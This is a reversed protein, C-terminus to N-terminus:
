YFDSEIPMLYWNKENTIYEELEKDSTLDKVVFPIKNKSKIFGLKMFLERYKMSDTIWTIVFDTNEKKFFEKAKYYLASIVDDNIGVMDVISGLKIEYEKRLSKAEVKLIIYGTIEGNCYAAITKYNIKPHNKIRWNLFESDRRTMILSNTKIKNWLKNFDEDFEDIEKFTYKEKLRIKKEKFILKMLLLLPVSLVKAIFKSKVVSILFNDIRYPNMFLNIDTVFSGGIGGLLGRLALQSPFGIRFKIGDSVGIEYSKNAMQGHMGKGRFEKKIMTDISQGSLMEEGKVIMYTPLLTCQGVIESDEEAVVIIPKNTPNEMFQWRWYEEDRDGVFVQNFLSVIGKGDGEKYERINYLAVM